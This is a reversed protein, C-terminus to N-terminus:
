EGRRAKEQKIGYLVTTHDRGMADAIDRSSFGSRDAIYYVMQRAMCVRHRRVTGKIAYAPIGTAEAVEAVIKNIRVNPIIMAAQALDAETLYAIRTM